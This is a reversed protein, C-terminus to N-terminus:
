IELILNGILKKIDAFSYNEDDNNQLDSIM